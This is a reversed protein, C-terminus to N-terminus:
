YSWPCLKFSEVLLDEQKEIVNQASELLAGAQDTNFCSIIKTDCHDNVVEIHQYATALVCREIADRLPEQADKYLRAKRTNADGESGANGISNAVSHAAGTAMNIAGAAVMGKIAGGIGFGGGIVEARSAKRYERYEKEEELQDIIDNYGDVALDYVDTCEDLNLCQKIYTEESINYIGHETSLTNYLPSLTSQVIIRKATPWFNNLVTYIDGCQLYWEDFLAAAQRAADWAFFQSKCYRDAAEDFEVTRGFLTYNSM